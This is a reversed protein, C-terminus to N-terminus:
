AVDLRRSSGLASRTPTSRHRPTCPNGREFWQLTANAIKQALREDRKRAHEREVLPPPPPARAGGAIAGGRRERRKEGRRQGHVRRGGRARRAVEGVREVLDRSARAPTQTVLTRTNNRRRTAETIRCPGRSAHPPKTGRPDTHKMTTKNNGHNSVAGTVRAATKHWSSGHQTMTTKNSGHNPVPGTVRTPVARTDTNRRRTQRQPEARAGARARHNTDRPDM